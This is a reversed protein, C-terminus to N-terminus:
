SRNTCTRSLTRSYIRSGTRSPTHRLTRFRPALLGPPTHHEQQGLPQSRHCDEPQGASCTLMMMNTTMAIMTTTMTMMLTMVMVMIMLTMMMMTMKTTM